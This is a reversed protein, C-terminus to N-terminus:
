RKRTKKKKKKKKKQTAKTGCGCRGHHDSMVSHLISLIFSLNKIIAIPKVNIMQLRLTKGSVLLTKGSVLLGFLCTNSCFVIFPILDFNTQIGFM